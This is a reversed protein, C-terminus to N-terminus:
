CRARTKGSLVSAQSAAAGALDRGYGADEVRAAFPKVPAISIMKMYNSVDSSIIIIINQFTFTTEYM